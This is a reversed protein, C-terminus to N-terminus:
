GAIGSPDYSATKAQQLSIKKSAVLEMLRENMCITKAGRMGKNQLMQRMQEYNIDSIAKAFQPTNEMIETALEYQKNDISPVLSQSIIGVLVESLVRAKQKIEEGTYHSLIRSITAIANNTHLTAMVLHGSEAAYLCTDLTEKNRIEGIVIVDPTQRLAEDLGSQFCPIDKGVERQSFVAKNRKMVYEIPDEVTIIHASRTNNIYEMLAAQTTTKGSGTPGTTLLLGRKRNVFDVVFHPLGASAITPPQLPLRRVALGLKREGHLFANCRMRITNLTYAKNVRGKPVEETKICLKEAWQGDMFKLFMGIDEGTIVHSRVVWGEPLKVMIPMDEHILLDSFLEDSRVLHMILSKLDSIVPSSSIEIINEPQIEM